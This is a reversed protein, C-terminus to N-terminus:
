FKETDKFFDSIFRIRRGSLEILTVGENEYPEGHRSRGRNSWHVVVFADQRIIRHISFVLQPYQRFLLRLFKLIRQKGVLPQTKPFHLAADAELLEEMLLFDRDNLAKFFRKGSVEKGM